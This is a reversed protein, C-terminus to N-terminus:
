RRLRPAFEFDRDGWRMSREPWDRLNRTVRVGHISALEDIVHDIELLPAEARRWAARSEWHGGNAM